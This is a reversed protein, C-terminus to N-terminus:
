RAMRRKLDNKQRTRDGERTELGPQLRRDKEELWLDKHGEKGRRGHERQVHRDLHQKFNGPTKAHNYIFLTLYLFLSRPPQCYCFWM